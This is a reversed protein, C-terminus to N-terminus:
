SALHESATIYPFSGTIHHVLTDQLFIKGVLKFPLQISQDIGNQFTRGIMSRGIALRQENAMKASSWRRHPLEAPGQLM